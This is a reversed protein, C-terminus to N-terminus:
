LVSIVSTCCFENSSLEPVKKSRFIFEERMWDCRLIGMEKRCFCLREWCNSSHTGFPVLKVIAAHFRKSPTRFTKCRSFIGRGNDAGDPTLIKFSALDKPHKPLVQPPHEPACYPHEKQQFSYFRCAASTYSPFWEYQLPLILNNHPYMHVPFYKEFYISNPRLQMLLKKQPLTFRQYKRSFSSNKSIM